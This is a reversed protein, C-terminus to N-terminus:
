SGLSRATIPLPGARRHRGFYLLTDTFSRRDLTPTSASTSNRHCSAARIDLLQADDRGINKSVRRRSGSARLARGLRNLM